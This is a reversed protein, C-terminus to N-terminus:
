AALMQAALTVATALAAGYQADLEVDSVTHYRPNPEAAPEGPMNPFYDECVAVAAWGQQQFAAHDSRSIAPDYQAREPAGASPSTGRYVQPVALAGTAASASELVAAVATSLDRVAPDPFGAHLEFARDLNPDHGIMDMCIAAKVPAVQAKLWAAYAKSGLMGAEEANFFCVRVTHTLSGRLPALCRAVALCGAIGSADDDMGPAASTAADYGTSRSATSDLHCGVVVLSAGLPITDPPLTWWRSWRGLGLVEAVDDTRRKALKRQIERVAAEGLMSQLRAAVHPWPPPPWHRLMERLKRLVDPRVRVIGRGPLDAIVNHLTRGDYAFAHTSAIWGLGSLDALLARVVRANDPHKVHRSVVAGCADLPTRGSYRDADAQFAVPDPSPPWLPAGVPAAAPRGGLGVNAFAVAAFRPDAIAATAPPALLEPSPFLLELAGHGVAAHAGEALGEGHLALVLDAAEVAVLTAGEWCEARVDARSGVRLLACDAGSLDFPLSYVEGGSRIARLIWGECAAGLVRWGSGSSEVHYPLLGAADRSPRRPLLARVFVPREGAAVWEALLLHPLPELGAARAAGRHRRDSAVFLTRGETHSTGLTIADEPRGAFVAVGPPLSSGMAAVDRASAPPPVILAVEHGAAALRRISRGADALLRLGASGDGEGERTEGIGQDLVVLVKWTSSNM